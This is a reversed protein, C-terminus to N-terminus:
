NSVHWVLKGDYYIGNFAMHSYHKECINIAEELTKAGDTLESRFSTPGVYIKYDCFHIYMNKHCAYQNKKFNYRHYKCSKCSRRKRYCWEAM